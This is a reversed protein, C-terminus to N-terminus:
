WAVGMDRACRDCVVMAEWGSVKVAYWQNCPEDTVIHPVLRHPGRDLAEQYQVIDTDRAEERDFLFSFIGCVCYPDKDHTRDKAVEMKWDVDQMGKTCLRVKTWKLPMPLKVVM